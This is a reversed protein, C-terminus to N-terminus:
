MFSLFIDAYVCVLGFIIKYCMFLDFRTRRSQLNELNLMKVTWRMHLKVVRTAAKHLPTSSTRIVRHRTEFPIVLYCLIRTVPSRLHFICSHVSWCQLACFLSFYWSLAVIPRAIAVVFVTYQLYFALIFLFILLATIDATRSNLWLTTDCHFYM